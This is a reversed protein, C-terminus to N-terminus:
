SAETRNSTHLELIQQFYEKGRINPHDIPPPPPPPSLPERDLGKKLISAVSRYSNTRLALARTCAAEVREPTYTKALYLVGQCSNFGREPFYHMDMIGQCYTATAPGISQAWTLIREPNWAAQARHHSPMHDNVTSYYGKRFSRAHSAVRTGGNFIEVTNRTLRIDVKKGICDFPVSYWNNEVRVHYNLQVTAKKWVAFEYPMAPLPLLAPRDVDEFMQTRTGELLQFRETNLSELLACIARNLEGLSFFTRHRLRALVYREVILVHGEVKAKDRPKQKRAPLVTTGYHRAWELYTANFVPEFRSPIIVTAKPNDPVICQTVGGIYEFAKTCAEVWSEVKQNRCGMAFSYNSAGLTGVFIQARFQEEGTAADRIPITDGAFDVFLKEGARHEFHMVAKDKRKWMNYRACFRSYSLGEPHEEKYELWLLQLTLHTHKRLEEAVHEWAPLPNPMPTSPHAYLLRELANHDMGEPLPYGVGAKKALSLYRGVTRRHIGMRKSINRESVGEQDLKLVAEIYRM